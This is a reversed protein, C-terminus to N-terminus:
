GRLRRTRRGAVLGPDAAQHLTLYAIAPAFSRLVQRYVPQKFPVAEDIVQAPTSWRWASFEGHPNDLRIM